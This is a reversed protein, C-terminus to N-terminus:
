RGNWTDTKYAIAAKYILAFESCPTVAADGAYYWRCNYQMRTILIADASRRASRKADLTRSLARIREIDTDHYACPGRFDARGWSDPSYSFYDHLTRDRCGIYPCHTYGRPVTVPGALAVRSSEDVAKEVLGASEKASLNDLAAAQVHSAGEGVVGGVLVKGDVDPATVIVGEHTVEVSYSVAERSVDNLVPRFERSGEECTFASGTAPSCGHPARFLIRLGEGSPIVEHVPYIFLADEAAGGSVDELVADYGRSISIAGASPALWLTVLVGAVWGAVSKRTQM